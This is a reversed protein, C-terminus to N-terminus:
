SIQGMQLDRIFVDKLEMHPAFGAAQVIFM